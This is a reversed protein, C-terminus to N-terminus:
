PKGTTKATTKATGKSRRRGAPKGDAQRRTGTMGAGELAALGAEDDGLSALLAALLETQAVVARELEEISAFDSM